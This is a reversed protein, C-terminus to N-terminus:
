IEAFMYLDVGNVKHKTDTLVYANSKWLAPARNEKWLEALLAGPKLPKSVRTSQRSSLQLYLRTCVCGFSLFLLLFFSPSTSALTVCMDENAESLDQLRAQMITNRADIYNCFGKVKHELDFLNCNPTLPCLMCVNNNDNTM